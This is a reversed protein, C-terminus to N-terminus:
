KKAKPVIKARNVVSVVKDISQAIKTAKANEAASLARGFLFVNGKVSRWRFNTVNIAKDEIFLVNIKKEIVTDDVFSEAAGKKSKAALDADLLLENYIKKVRADKKTLEAAQAKLAATSVSGTLMVDQEYVDVGILAGAKGLKDTLAAVIATKLKLDTAIDSSSRDEVAAEIGSVIGSLPNFQAEARGFGASLALVAL